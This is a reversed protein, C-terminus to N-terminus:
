RGDCGTSSSRPPPESGVTGSGATQQLRGLVATLYPPQDSRFARVRVAAERRLQADLAELRDFLQRMERRDPLGALAADVSVLRDTLGALQV